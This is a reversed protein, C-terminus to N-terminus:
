VAVATTSLTMEGSMGGPVSTVWTAFSGEYAPCHPLSAAFCRSINFPDSGSKPEPGKARSLTVLNVDMNGDWRGVTGGDRPERWGAGM